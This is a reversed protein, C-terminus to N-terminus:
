GLSCIRASTRTHSPTARSHTPILFRVTDLLAPDRTRTISAGSFEKTRKLLFCALAEDCHFTGDHTGIRKQLSSSACRHTLSIAWSHEVQREGTIWGAICVRKETRCDADGWGGM